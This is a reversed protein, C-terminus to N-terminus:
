DTKNAAIKLLTYAVVLTALLDTIGLGGQVADPLDIEMLKAGAFILASLGILLLGIGCLRRERNLKM